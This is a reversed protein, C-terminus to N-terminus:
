PKVNNIGFFLLPNKQYCNINVLDLCFIKRISQSRVMGQYLCKNINVYRIKEIKTLYERGLHRFDLRNCHSRRKEGETRLLCFFSSWPSILGLHAASCTDPWGQYKFSKNEFILGISCYFNSNKQIWKNVTLSLM